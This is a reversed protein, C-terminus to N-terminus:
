KEVIEVEFEKLYYLYDMFIKMANKSEYIFNPRFYRGIGICGRTERPRNLIHFQIQSRGPVEQLEFALPGWLKNKSSYDLKCYYVGVPICSVDQKNDRWPLELTYLPAHGPLIIEGVTSKNFMWEKYRTLIIRIM